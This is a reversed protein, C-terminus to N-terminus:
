RATARRRLLVPLALLALLSSGGADCGSKKPDSTAVGPTEAAKPEATATPEGKCWVESWASAGYTECRKAFGKTGLSKVCADQDGHWASCSECTVGPQTHNEVTCKEVYDDPPPIDALAAGSPVFLLMLALLASKM